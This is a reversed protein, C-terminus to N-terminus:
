QGRCAVHRTGNKVNFFYVDSPRSETLVYFIDLSQRSEDLLYM